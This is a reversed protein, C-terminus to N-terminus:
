LLEELAQGITPYNFSFGAKQLIEPVVKQGNILASAGEGYLLKLALAPVPFIAPRQLTTALAKTFEKNDIVQPAVFNVPGHIAQHKIVFLFANLLDYMHIWPFNQRGSAIRGGLGLRFPPLMKQLAGGNKGLVIGIRPNVLRVGQKVAMSAEEWNRCLMGTFDSALQNSTETNLKEDSYIGVASASVLLEPPVPMTNIAEVLKQTTLIRSSVMEQKWTKTWRHIIPAGALNIVTLCGSIKVSLQEPSGALDTRSISQITYGENQLKKILNSGIFGNAGTIAIKNM